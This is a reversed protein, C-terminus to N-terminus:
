PQASKPKKEKEETKKETEKKLASSKEKEKTSSSKEKTKDNDKDSSKEKKEQKKKDEKVTKEKRKFWSKVDIAKRDTLEGNKYFTITHSEGDDSIQKGHLKGKKYNQVSKTKTIKNQSFQKGHLNVNKYQQMERTGDPLQTQKKLVTSDKDLEFYTSDTVIIIKNRKHTSTKSVIGNEDYFIATKTNVGHRFYEVKQLKGTDYWYTWKGHQLGNKFAGKKRLQKNPYYSEFNGHLLQGSGGGQTSVIEQSKYWFYMKDNSFNRPMKEDHGKVHFKFFENNSRFSKFNTIDKPKQCFVNSIVIISSFFLILKM